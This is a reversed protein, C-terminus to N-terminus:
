GEPLFKFSQFFCGSYNRVLRIEAEELFFFKWVKNLMLEGEGRRKKGERGIKLFVTVYWKRLPPTFERALAILWPTLSCFCKCAKTMFLAHACSFYNGFILSLRRARHTRLFLFTAIKKIRPITSAILLDLIIISSDTCCCKARTEDIISHTM